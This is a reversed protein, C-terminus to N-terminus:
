DRSRSAENLRRKLALATELGERLAPHNPNLKSATRYHTIAKDIKGTTALIVGLNYHVQWANKNFELAKRYHEIAENIRGVNKLANGLNNHLLCNGRAKQLFETCYSIAEEPKGEDIFGAALNAVADIYMPFIKVAAKFHELAKATKGQDRLVVGLNNHAVHNNATVKLAHEYLAINNRWYGAQIWTCVALAALIVVASVAAAVKRYSINGIIDAAGWAIVIFIGILPVYTYRDAHSQLGVQVLGVVPVLTGVYWLWGVVTYGRRCLWIMLVTIALLLLGAGAAQWLPWTKAYPYFAALRAPWVMKYLYVIYSVMANSVRNEIRLARAPVQVSQQVWLTVICSAASLIFLPVKELVLRLFSQEKNKAKKAHGKRRKYGGESRGVSQLRGLPWYDLLLLTFPLTVLMPKSILGFAFLILVPAYRSLAPRRAYPVYALMTLLWFFTSLVDKREAVWAVSEVHLPHLAFLASAFASPWLSGTTRKLFYFLLLTNVVHFLLNTTHCAKARAESLECDLMLSLWTVPHWNSASTARFAWKVGELTLGKQVHPNETVYKPDDFSVFEHSRVQWYIGLTAAAIVVSAAIALLRNKQSLSVSVSM